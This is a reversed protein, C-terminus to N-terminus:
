KKYIGRPQIIEFQLGNLSKPHIFNVKGFSFDPSQDWLLQLGQTKLREVENDADDSELSVLILGEGRTKLFKGVVSNEDSSTLLFIYVGHFDFLAGEIGPFAFNEPGLYRFRPEVGLFAEYKAVAQKLDKVAVNFGNVGKLM